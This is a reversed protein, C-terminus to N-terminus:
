LTQFLQELLLQSATKFFNLSCWNRSNTKPLQQEQLGHWLIVEMDETKSGCFLDKFADVM